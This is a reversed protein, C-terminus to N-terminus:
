RLRIYACDKECAWTIEGTRLDIVGSRGVPSLTNGYGTNAWDVRNFALLRGDSSIGMAHVAGLESELTVRVRAVETQLGDLAIAYIVWDDGDKGSFLVRDHWPDVVPLTSENVSTLPIAGLETPAVEPAGARLRLTGKEADCLGWVLVSGRLWGLVIAHTERGNALDVRRDAVLDYVAASRCPRDPAVVWRGDPSVEQAPPVTGPDVRGLLGLQRASRAGEPLPRRTVDGSRVDVTILWDEDSGGPAVGLQAGGDRALAVIRDAGVWSLSLVGLSDGLPRLNAVERLDGFRDGVYISAGYSVAFASRDESWWGGRWGTAPNAVLVSRGPGTGDWFMLREVQTGDAEITLAGYYAPWPDHGILREILRGAETVTARGVPTAMFIGLLLALVVLISVPDLRVLGVRRVRPQLRGPGAPVPLSDIVAVMRVGLTDIDESM